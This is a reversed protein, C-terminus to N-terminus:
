LAPDLKTVFTTLCNKFSVNTHINQFPGATSPFDTACTAGAVYVNGSADLEVGNIVNPLTGNSGGLSVAAMLVPDIVLPKSRDYPGVEFRLERGAVIKFHSNVHTRVGGVEQYSVPRKLQVEGAPTHLVANGSDDLHVRRAGSFKLRITKPDAGPSVLFDNELQQPNGYFVLDVGPYVGAMKVRSFHPVARHWNSPDNGIFYNSRGSQEGAGSVAAAPSAGVLRLELPSSSVQEPLAARLTVPLTARDTHTAIHQLSLTAVGPSLGLSYGPGHAVYNFRAPAQGQNAEFDLPFQLYSSMASRKEQPTAPRMRALPPAPLKPASMPALQPRVDPASIATMRETRPKELHFSIALGAVALILFSFYIILKRM